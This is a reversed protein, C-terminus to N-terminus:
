GEPNAAAAGFAGVRYRLYHDVLAKADESDWEAPGNMVAVVLGKPDIVFTTPLGVIGFARALVSKTDLYLGMHLLSLRQIFPRVAAMGGRDISVGLVALGRHRYAAQLRDLSPMERVCPACWTAWFNLLVLRGKFDSLKVPAGSLDYFTGLPAPVPPDLPTFDYQFVGKLPPPEGGSAPAGSLLAVALVTLFAAACTNKKLM